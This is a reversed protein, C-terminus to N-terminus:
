SDLERSSVKRAVEDAAIHLMHRRADDTLRDWNRQNTYLTKVASGANTSVSVHVEVYDETM